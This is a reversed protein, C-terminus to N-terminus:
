GSVTDYLGRVTEVSRSFDAHAAIWERAAALGPREGEAL